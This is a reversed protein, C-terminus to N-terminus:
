GGSVPPLFELDDQTGILRQDDAMADRICARSLRLAEAIDPHSAALSQRIEGVSAAEGAAIELERGMADALRGYFRIKV